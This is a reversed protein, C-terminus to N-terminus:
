RGRSSRIRPATRWGWLALGLGDIVHTADAKKLSPTGPVRVTGGRYRLGGNPAHELELDRLIRRTFADKRVSGKWDSPEPMVIERGPWLVRCLGAAIGAVQALHILDQARVPSGPRHRQGEVIIREVHQGEPLDIRLDSLVDDLRDIMQLIREGVPARRKPVEILRAHIPRGDNLLGIGTTKTDPDIGLVIM